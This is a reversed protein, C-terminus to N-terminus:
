HNVKERLVKGVKFFANRKSKVIFKEGSKPNRGTYAKYDRVTFTGFGRLQIKTGCELTKTFCEFIHNVIKEAKNESINEKIALQAILDSKNM